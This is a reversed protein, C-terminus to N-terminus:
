FRIPITTNDGVSAGLFPYSLGLGGTGFGLGGSTYGGGATVPGASLEVSRSQGFFDEKCGNPMFTVVISIGLSLGAGRKLTKYQGTEVGGGCECGWELYRGISYSGGGFAYADVNFEIALIAEGRPDVYRGPNQGAYGYVSAGDVLGLPDAQLYRGTTPDYDRMWNQHLGPLGPVM